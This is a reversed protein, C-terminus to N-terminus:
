DEKHSNKFERKKNKVARTRLSIERRAFLVFTKDRPVITGKKNKKM